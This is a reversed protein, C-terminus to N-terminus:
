RVVSGHGIEGAPTVLVLRGETDSAALVMGQSEQGMLKAPQLNFVVVVNKGVLDEPRVHKAIGAVIQRREGGVEVQLKLLKESKPVAEAAVVRAVRLDLKQFDEISVTPKAPVPPAATPSPAPPAASPGQLANLEQEIVADEIKTFVIAPTGLKQGAPLVPEGASDWPQRAAAGELGLLGWIKESAAPTVPSMLVALSRALQLCVNVSTACRAPDSKATKWPEADNFYKNAARALNMIEQVGERFRYREFLAAAEGPTGAMRALM